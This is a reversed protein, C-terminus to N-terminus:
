GPSAKRDLPDMTTSTLQDLIASVVQRLFWRFHYHHCYLYSNSYPNIIFKHPLPHYWPRVIMHAQLVRLPATCFKEKSYMSPSNSRPNMKEEELVISPKRKNVDKRTWLNIKEVELCLKPKASVEQRSPIRHWRELLKSTLCSIYILLWIDTYTYTNIYKYKYLTNM